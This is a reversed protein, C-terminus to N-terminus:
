MYLGGTSKISAIVKLKETSEGEDSVEEGELYVKGPFGVGNIPEDEEFFGDSKTMYEWTKPTNEHGDPYVKPKFLLGFVTHLVFGCIFTYLWGCGYIDSAVQSLSEPHYAKYLGPIALIPSLVWALLAWLNCGKYFYYAGQKSKTYLSPIHINGRRIIYYDSLLNGLLPGVFISYSGLFILFQTANALFKWPVFIWASFGAIIQARVITIYKPFLGTLDASFPISNAFINTGATGLAFSFALLCVATRSGATWSHDLIGAFLDWMNWYMEGYARRISVTSVMGFVLVMIKSPLFGIAQPIVTDQKRKAYRSIDPQNIIMPSLTGFISNLISMWENGITNTREIEVGISWDGPGGGKVCCFIFLGLTAFPLIFAKVRFFLRIQRPRCWMLPMQILWYLFFAVIGRTTINQSAPIHNPIDTWKYGFICRLMVDLCQSGYYSQVSFWILAVFARVFIFFLGLHVGYVSKAVVNYGIHYSSGVRANIIVFFCSVFISLISAGIVQGHPLGTEKILSAGTNWENINFSSQFWLLIFDKIKWTRQEPPTPKTDKNSRLKMSDEETDDQVKLINDIKTLFSM